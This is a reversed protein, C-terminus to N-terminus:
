LVKVKSKSTLILNKMDVGTILNIGPKKGPELSGLFDNLGLARAGNM